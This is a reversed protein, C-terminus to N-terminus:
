PRPLTGWARPSLYPPHPDRVEDAAITAQLVLCEDNPDLETDVVEFGPTVPITQDPGDRYTDVPVLMREGTAGELAVSFKCRLAQGATLEVHLENNAFTARVRPRPPPGMGHIWAAAYDTLDLGTSTELATILGDVSLTGESGLVERLAALVQARSTLVELQRFLILPGPGYVDGYFSFLPPHEGPVLYFNVGVSGRKWDDLTRAAYAPNTESEFVFTLYEAMSEKWVFDYTDALTTQDGAWQHAIEHNVTHTLPYPSPALDDSVVINGPHEFAAWYTPAVVIRLDSGYPYPGFTDEMFQVFADHTADNLAAATGSSTRDYLTVATSGWTGRSAETWSASAGFGFTSYTPGGALEFSCRTQTASLETIAGSCLVTEAEPHTIVFVHHAFTGPRADCPGFQSCGGVWSVMYTFPNGDEDDTISYGVQSPGLTALAVTLETELVPTDGMAFTTAGCATLKNDAVAYATAPAGDILVLSLEPGTYDLVICNGPQEVTLTVAPRAVRTALDFQYEYRTVSATVPMPEPDCTDDEGCDANDIADRDSTNDNDTDLDSSCDDDLCENFDDSDDGGCAAALLSCVM